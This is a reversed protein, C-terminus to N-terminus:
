NPPYGYGQSFWFDNIFNILSYEREIIYGTDKKDTIVDVQAPIIHLFYWKGDIYAQAQCHYDGQETRGYAIKVPYNESFILAAMAAEHRCSSNRSEGDMDCSVFISIFLALIWLTKM